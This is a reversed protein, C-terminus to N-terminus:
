FFHALRVRDHGPTLGEGSSKTCKRTWLMRWSAMVGTVTFLACKEGEWRVRQTVVTKNQQQQKEEGCLVKFTFQKPLVTCTYLINHKLHIKHASLADILAYYIYMIIKLLLVLTM